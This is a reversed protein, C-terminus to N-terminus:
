TLSRGSSGTSGAAAQGHVYVLPALWFIAAASITLFVNGVLSSGPASVAVLLGVVVAAFFQLGVVTRSAIDYKGAAILRRRMWDEYQHLKGHDLLTGIRAGIALFPSGRRESRTSRGGPEGQFGYAEIERVRALARTRPQAYGWAAAAIATGCLALLVLGILVTM